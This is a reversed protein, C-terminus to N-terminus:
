RARRPRPDPRDSRTPSAPASAAGAARARPIARARRRTRGPSSAGRTDHTTSEHATAPSPTSSRTPPKSGSTPDPSSTGPRGGADASSTGRNSGDPRVHSPTVSRVTQSPRRAEESSERRLQLPNPGRRAAPQLRVGAPVGGGRVPRRDLERRPGGLLLARARPRRQSRRARGRAADDAAPPRRAAARDRGARDAARARARQRGRPDRRRGDRRRPALLAADILGPRYGISAAYGRDFSSALAPRYLLVLGALIVGLDRRHRARRERSNALVDGFLFDGLSRTPNSQLALLIVGLPFLGAFAVGM